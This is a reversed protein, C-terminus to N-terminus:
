RVDGSVFFTNRSYWLDIRDSFRGEGNSINEEKRRMKGISLVIKRYGVVSVNNLSMSFFPKVYQQATNGPPM